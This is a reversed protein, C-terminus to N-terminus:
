FLEEFRWLFEPNLSPKTVLVQGTAQHECVGQSKWSPRRAPVGSGEATSTLRCSGMARPLYSLHPHHEPGRLLNYSCGM